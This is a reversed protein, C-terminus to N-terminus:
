HTQRTSARGQSPGRRAPEPHSRTGGARQGRATWTSNKSQMRGQSVGLGGLSDGSRPTTQSSHCTQHRETRCGRVECNMKPETPLAWREGGQGKGERSRKSVAGGHPQAPLQTSVMLRTQPLHRKTVNLRRDTFAPRVGRLAGRVNQSWRQM